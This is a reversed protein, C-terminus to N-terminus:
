NNLLIETDIQSNVRVRNSQKIIVETGDDLVGEYMNSFMGSTIQNISRIIHGDPLTIDPIQNANPTADVSAIPTSVKLPHRSSQELRTRKENQTEIADAVLDIFDGLAYDENDLLFVKGEGASQTIRVIDKESTNSVIVIADVLHTNNLLFLLLLYVLAASAGENNFARVV